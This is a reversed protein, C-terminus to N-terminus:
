HASMQAQRPDNKKLLFVLPVMVACSIAMVWIADVYALAAAQMQVFGYLHAYSQQAADPLSFGRQAFMQNMGGITNQFALDYGTVHLALRDQHVQSRRAVITTVMAIGVSGGINRALNILSSVQNNKNQPVGIYAMTTLPVFLFALGISQLCRYIIAARFDIDPNISTMHMLSWASIAFGFAALWRAQVRTILTGVLPMMLMITLGGPSLVFGSLEATYGMLSQLYLPLLVTTGYLGTGVVFMMLWSTAFTSNSFLRLDLIPDRQRLEWVVFGILAVISVTTLTAIMHSALWDVEQGKDLVVQLSGLGLAILGLGIYDISFRARAKKIEEKLYPPDEVMRYTLMTSAVGIPVNIFFIWRWNFHDTIFGGLTPGIAPALVVAMGYIAFAMGFKEPPFTDALIAQESPQLGGGGAGQVIRFLILIGLTPAFGCLLSSTTFIAVCSMYFRKRGVISAMWASLPLVIANAVLYATLVWTSENVSASLGGAIHPLAVNAISTDLVEMFTAITVTFAIAWPNRQRVPGPATSVPLTKPAASM